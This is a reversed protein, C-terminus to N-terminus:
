PNSIRFENATHLPVIIDPGDDTLVYAVFYFGMPGPLQDIGISTVGAKHANYTGGDHTTISILRDGVNLIERAM